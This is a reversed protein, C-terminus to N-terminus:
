FDTSLFIIPIKPYGSIPYGDSLCLMQVIPTCWIKGTLFKLYNSCFRIKFQFYRPVYKVFKSYLNFYKSVKNKPSMKKRVISPEVFSQGSFFFKLLDLVSVTFHLHYQHYQTLQQRRESQSRWSIVWRVQTFCSM